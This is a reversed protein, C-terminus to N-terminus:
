FTLSVSSTGSNTPDMRTPTAYIVINRKIPAIMLPSNQQHVLVSTIKWSREAGFNTNASAFANKM